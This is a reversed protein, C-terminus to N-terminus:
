GPGERHYAGCASQEQGVPPRKDPELVQDPAHDVRPRRSLDDLSRSMDVEEDCRDALKTSCMAGDLMSPRFPWEAAGGSGARTGANSSRSDFSRGGCSRPPATDRAASMPKTSSREAEIGIM